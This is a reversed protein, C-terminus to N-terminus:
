KYYITTKLQMGELCIIQVSLQYFRLENMSVNGTAITTVNGVCCYDAAEEVSNPHRYVFVPHRHLMSVNM